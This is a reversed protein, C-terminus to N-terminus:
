MPFKGMEEPKLNELFDVFRRATEARGLDEGAIGVSPVLALMEDSILVPLQYKLAMVLAEAPRVVISLEKKRRVFRVSMEFVGEQIGDISVMEPKLGLTAFLSDMMAPRTTNSGTLDSNVLEAAVLLAEHPNIWIPVTHQDAADKLIVVPM